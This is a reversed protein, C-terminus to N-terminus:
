LLPPCSGQSKEPPCVRLGTELLTIPSHLAIVLWSNPRGSNVKALVQSVSNPGFSMTRYGCARKNPSM